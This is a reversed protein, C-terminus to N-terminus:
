KRRQKRETSTGAVLGPVYESSVYVIVGNTTEVWRYYEGPQPEDDVIRRIKFGIQRLFSAIEETSGCVRALWDVCSGNPLEKARFELECKMLHKSLRFDFTEEKETQKKPM